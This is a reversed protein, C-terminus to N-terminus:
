PSLPTNPDPPSADPADPQRSAPPKRAAKRRPKRQLKLAKRRSNYATTM